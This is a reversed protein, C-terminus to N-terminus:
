FTLTGTVGLAFSYINLSGNAGQSNADGNNTNFITIDFTNTPNLLWGAAGARINEDYTWGATGKGKFHFWQARAWLNLGFLTTPRVDYEFSGELFTGVKNFKYSLQSTENERFFLDLLYHLGLGSTRSFIADGAQNEVSGYPLKVQISAFPSGILSARCNPGALQFGVYPLWMPISIDGSYTTDTSTGLTLNGIIPVPITVTGGSEIMPQSLKTTIKSWRVGAVLPVVSWQYVVGGELSVQQFKSGTWDVEQGTKISVTKNLTGEANVFLGFRDGHSVLFGVNGYPLGARGVSFDLAGNPVPLSFNLGYREYGIGLTPTVTVGGFAITGLQNPVLGAQAWAGSVTGCIVLAGAVVLTKFWRQGIEM